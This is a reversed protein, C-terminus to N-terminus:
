RSPARAATACAARTFPMSFGMEAGPHYLLMRTGEAPAEIFYIGTYFSNPHNHVDISDGKRLVNLWCRDIALPQEAPDVSKREAFATVETTFIDVLRGFAGRRHLSAM